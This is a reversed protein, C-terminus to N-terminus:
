TSARHTRCQHKIETLAGGVHHLCRGSAHGRHAPAHMLALIAPSKLKPCGTLVQPFEPYNPKITWLPQRDQFIHILIGALRAVAVQEQQGAWTGDEAMRKCYLDFEEDNEMYPEFDERHQRMFSM